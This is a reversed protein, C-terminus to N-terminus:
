NSSSNRKENNHDTSRGTMKTLYRDWEHDSMRSFRDAKEPDSLIENTIQQELLERKSPRRVGDCSGRMGDKAYFIMEESEIGSIFRNIDLIEKLGKRVTMM